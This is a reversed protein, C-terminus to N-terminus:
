CGFWEGTRGFGCIVEDSAFLIGYRDVIRQVEPWYTRPPIIVGGAGQVPEAIFAAVKEPGVELIKAELERAAQLGFEDPDLDGGCEFWYPQGIHVIGPIPM